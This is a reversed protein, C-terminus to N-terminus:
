TVWTVAWVCMAPFSSCYKDSLILVWYKSPNTAYIKKV